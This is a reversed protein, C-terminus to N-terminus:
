ATVERGFLGSPKFVLVLTVAIFPVLPQISPAILFMLANMVGILVAGVFAGWFSGLGGLIIVIFSEIIISEGLAPHISQFPAALAGGLGALVSGVFFVITFVIPVDIGLASTMERNESAARVTRGISTREFAIWIVLAVVIGSGILFLNYGPFSRGLIDVNFALSPPVSISRFETGWVIRVGNDIVLVLAFTLILQFIHDYDYIRRIILREVVVGVVGVLLAALFASPWFSGVYRSTLVFTFYAGLMYFSGHAFNLIGLVGFILTLGSAALFLLMGNALGQLIAIGFAQITVM